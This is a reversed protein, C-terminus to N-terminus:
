VGRKMALITPLADLAPMVKLATRVLTPLGRDHLEILALASRFDDGIMELRRDDLGRNGALANSFDGINMKALDAAEGISLQCLKLAERIRKERARRRDDSLQVSGLSLLTSVVVPVGYNLIASWYGIALGAAIVIVLRALDRPRARM